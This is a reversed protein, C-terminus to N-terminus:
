GTSGPFLSCTGLLDSFTVLTKACTLSLVVQLSRTPERPSGRLPASMDRLPSTVLECSFLHKLTNALSVDDSPDEPSLRFLTLVDLPVTTQSAIDLFICFDGLFRSIVM